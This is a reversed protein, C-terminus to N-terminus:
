LILTSSVAPSIEAKVGCNNMVGVPLPPPGAIEETDAFGLSVFAIMVHFVFIKGWADYTYQDVDGVIAAGTEMTAATAVEPGGNTFVAM